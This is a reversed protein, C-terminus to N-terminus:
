FLNYLIKISPQYYNQKVNEDTIQNAINIGGVMRLKDSLEYALEINITSSIFYDKNNNYHQKLYKNTKDPYFSYAIGADINSRLKWVEFSYGVSFPVTYHQLLKNQNITTNVYETQQVTQEVDKTIIEPVPNGNNYRYITDVNVTNIVIEEVIEEVLRSEKKKYNIANVQFGTQIYFNGKYLRLMLPVGMAYTNHRDSKTKVSAFGLSFGSGVYLRFPETEIYEYKVVEVRKVITDQQVYITDSQEKALPKVQSVITLPFVICLAIASVLRIIKNIIM